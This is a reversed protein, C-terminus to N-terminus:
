RAASAPSAPPAVPAGPEPEVRGLHRELFNMVRAYYAARAAVGDMAHGQGDIPMWEVPKGAAELARVMERSQSYQVRRDLNGHAILLPAGVKEVHRLPSVEDLAPGDLEPDGVRARTVERSVRTSDDFLGGANMQDRLDSIGALSVGCRYLDPTKIVGWMAAYGGYSAGYICIRKPDAIGQGILYRVGDTIDDQMARGWQRYGAEEFRRGFGSSGRFQPQLVVWGARAFLQVDESWGWQDRVNPGGHIVIVAPRPTSKSGAPRTLYAPITLGDRAVYEIPQMPQMEEPKVRPMAIAVEQMRGNTTDLVFWRGPDVDGDSRVLVRGRKDGSLVNRRGPLVADVSAQVGAWRPDFWTTQGKLGGTVVREVSGIELRGVGLIDERPHGAMVELHRKAAADYRFVAETDRQHGSLVALTDAEDLVRLPTWVDNSTAPWSELLVWPAQPGSRYWNSIRSPKAVSGSELMSVARMVGAADFVWHAPKGPLEIRYPKREGTRANVVDIEADEVDRYALVHEALPGETALRGIFYEGLAAVKRGERDVVISERTNHDVALLDNGIWNVRVPMQGFVYRRDPEWDVLTKVKNSDVDILFARQWRGHEIGAVFRGDPSLSVSSIRVGAIWPEDLMKLASHRDEARAAVPLSLPVVLAIALLLFRM